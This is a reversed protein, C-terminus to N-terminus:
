HGEMAGKTIYAMRNIKYKIIAILNGIIALQRYSLSHDFEDNGKVTASTIVAMTSAMTGDTM